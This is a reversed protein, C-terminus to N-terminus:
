KAQEVVEIIRWKKTKSIPAVELMRVLDGIKSNNMEDHAHYTTKKRMVKGYLPHIRSWEVKVTRTMSQKDSTVRGVITRKKVEVESM